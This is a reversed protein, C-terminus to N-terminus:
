AHGVSRMTRCISDVDVLDAIRPTPFRVGFEKELEVVLDMHGMSDWGPVAGMRLSGSADEAKLSFTRAIIGRVRGEIEDTPM